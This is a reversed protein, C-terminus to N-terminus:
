IKYNHESIKTIHSNTIIKIDSIRGMADQVNLRYVFSYHEILTLTNQFSAEIRIYRARTM